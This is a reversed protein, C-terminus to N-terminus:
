YYANPAKATYTLADARQVQSGLCVLTRSGSALRATLEMATKTEGKIGKAM